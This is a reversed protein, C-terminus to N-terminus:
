RRPPDFRLPFSVEAEGGYEPAPFILKRVYSLVCDALPPDGIEDKTIAVEKLAGDPAVTMTLLLMGALRPNEQYRAEYCSKFNHQTQRFVQKVQAPTLRGIRKAGQPPVFRMPHNLTVPKGKYPQPFTLQQVVGLACRDFAETGTKSLLKVTEVRGDGAIVLQFILNGALNPNRDLASEYCLTKITGAATKMVPDTQARSLGPKGAMPDPDRAVVVTVQFFPPDDPVWFAGIGIRALEEKLAQEAEPAKCLDALIKGARLGYVYQVRYGHSVLKEAKLRAEFTKAAPDGRAGYEAQQRALLRLREDMRLAALSWRKRLEGIGKFLELELKVAKPDTDGLGRRSGLRGARAQATATTLILCAVYTIRAPAM